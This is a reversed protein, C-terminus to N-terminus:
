TPWVTIDKECCFTGLDPTWHLIFPATSNSVRFCVDIPGFVAGGAFEHRAFTKCGAADTIPISSRRGQGADLNAVDDGSDTALRHRARLDHGVHEHRQFGTLLHGDVKGMAVPGLGRHTDGDSLQLSRIM